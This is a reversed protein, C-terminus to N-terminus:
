LAECAWGAEGYRWLYPAHKPEIRTGFMIEHLADFLGSHAVFLLSSERYGALWKGMVRVTREGTEQWQEADSPLHRTLREHPQLGFQSKIEHVVLGELGGFHRERLDSDVFLPKGLHEAVIAATKLARILPSAVVVDVPCNALARAADQAQSLGLENLAIDTHGQFRGEVNWNTQGHRLFYFSRKPIPLGAAGEKIRGQKDSTGELSLVLTPHGFRRTGM